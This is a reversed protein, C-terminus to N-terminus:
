ADWIMPDLDDPRVQRGAQRMGAATIKWAPDDAATAQCQEIYGASELYRLSRDVDNTARRGVRGRVYSDVDDFSQAIGLDNFYHLITRNVIRDTM